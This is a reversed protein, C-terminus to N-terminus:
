IENVIVNNVKYMMIMIQMYMRLDFFKYLSNLISVTSYVNIVINLM